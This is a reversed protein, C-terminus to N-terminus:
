KQWKIFGSQSLTKMFMVLREYLPECDEGYKEKFLGAIEFVTKEGDILSWVTEAKEDLEIKTETPVNLLSKLILNLVGKRECIIVSDGTKLKENKVPVCDLINKKSKM